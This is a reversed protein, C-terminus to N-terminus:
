IEIYIPILSRTSAECTWKTETGSQETDYAQTWGLLGRFVLLHPVSDSLNLIADANAALKAIVELAKNFRQRRWVEQRYFLLYAQQRLAENHSVSQYYEDNFNYWQGSEREAYAVYHGGALTGSHM